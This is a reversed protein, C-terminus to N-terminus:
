LKLAKEWCWECDYMSENIFCDGEYKSLGFNSPCGELMDYNIVDKNLQILNSGCQELHEISSSLPRSNLYKYITTDKIM